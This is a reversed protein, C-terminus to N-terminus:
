WRRPGRSRHLGGARAEVGWAIGGLVGGEGWGGAVTVGTAVEQYRELGAAAGDGGSVERMRVFVISVVVVLVAVHVLRLWATSPRKGLMWVEKSFVPGPFRMTWPIKRRNARRLEAPSM